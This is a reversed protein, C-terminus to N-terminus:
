DFGEWGGKVFPLPVAEGKTFPSQPPNQLLPIKLITNSFNNLAIYPLLPCFTSIFFLCPGM